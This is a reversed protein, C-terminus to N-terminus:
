KLKKIREEMGITWTYRKYKRLVKWAIYRGMLNQGWDFWIWTVLWHSRVEYDLCQKITLTENMKNDRDM